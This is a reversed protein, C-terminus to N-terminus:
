PDHASVQFFCYENEKWATLHNWLHTKIKALMFTSITYRQQWQDGFSQDDQIESQSNLWYTNETKNMGVRQKVKHTNTKSIHIM